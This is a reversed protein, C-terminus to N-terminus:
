NSLIFDDVYFTENQDNPGQIWLGIQNFVNGTQWLNLDSVLLKVYKWEDKPVVIPVGTDSNGFGASRGSSTLYLTYEQSAGKIWFSLFKYTAAYPVGTGWNAFGNASWNGKNYTM